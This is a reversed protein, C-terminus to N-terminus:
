PALELPYFRYPIWYQSHTAFNLWTFLVVAYYLVVIGVLIRVSRSSQGFVEPLRSFVVLQLPLMYLGVRDVATSANTALLVALLLLSILAFWRWLSTESPTFGFKKSYRLFILAPVANMLLRIFAGESQYEALVYNEYLNDVADSLLLFYAGITIVVAYLATLIRNRKQVLMAIPLLLVGTKHFTAGLVVWVLFARPSRRSLALLGLMGCGLAVGQRSYGMAVVVVLYPVSIALGLWPRTLGRCFRVLALAFLPAIMMNVGVAGWGMELTIWNLVAFGPDPSTIAERFTLGHLQDLNAEYNFWDGGVQWRLGIILAIAAWAALWPMQLGDGLVDV